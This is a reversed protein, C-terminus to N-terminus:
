ETLENSLQIRERKMERKMRMIDATKIKMPKDIIAEAMALMQKSEGNEKYLHFLKYFPLFRSPCMMSANNYYKEAQRPQHLRQYNEGIILELDYDAWYHRCQLAIQLSQQYQKKELLIAAYNYLFYPNDAFVKVLKEYSPLAKDYSRCLALTSTEAWEKEARIREVLKYIGGLSCVFILICVTNKIWTTAFFERIYEQTIIWICLFTIIWTFPYTFPYSFLSFIGISILSYLAIEKERIPNKKYCYILLLVMAFVALLGVIGFNLLVGLYENFPQKINDALMAYRNHEHTRFYEAQYDMYHAEFSGVGHGLWPADKAMDIGCQWILLRGDASDKKLWYCGTLLLVLGGLLVYKWIRKHLLRQYLFIAAITAFSVIGARSHSLIVAVTLLAGAIWGSYQIYRNKTSLLFGVFPLGCCLAAAFGAPNDFSGTVKYTSHSPLLDFYQLLGYLAQSLCVIVIGIGLLSINVKMTKVFLMRISCYLWIGLAILLVILWKPVISSDTFSHSQAFLASVCLMSFVCLAIYDKSNIM